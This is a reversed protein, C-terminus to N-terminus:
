SAASYYGAVVPPAAQHDLEVKIANALAALGDIRKGSKERDPKVLKIREGDDRRVQASDVNWRAVPHGGHCLLLGDAPEAADHKVMRHLEKLAGSVGYGQQVPAIKLQLKQMFQATATAQAQDYGVQLIRFQGHDAAIQPHIALGTGSRGANTPDGEYDIWDGETATLFGQKVWLSAKGGTARDLVPLQAEPTWFRWLVAAPKGDEAPFRLVWAALDTTSALDLGAFCSRGGLDEPIVLGAGADWLPMPIWRTVNSQRINLQLQLFAGLKVPDAKAEKAMTRMSELSKFTGLAPNAQYWTAEDFPDADVDTKYVLSFIHPMSAPDEQVREAEDILDAGFSQPENTETTIAVMLSQARAGEATRMADWLTRDPMALVEDLVFGHPNHGLEGVADAPIVEYWSGTDEDFIRRAAKNEDLRKSLVPSLQMMRRVPKFVKGAQRTTKAAGYVEAAEEDDGVLLYLVLAAVLASKGNKRALVIYAIRYRRVYRGWEASWIVEGFLPRIIEFEQWPELVFAKRAFPGATHVLLEACFAVVKDARPECYHSGRRRCVKGDFTYGCIGGARSRPRWRKEPDSPTSKPPGSRSPSRRSSGARTRATV